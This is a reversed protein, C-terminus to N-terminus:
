TGQAQLAYLPRPNGQADCSAFKWWAWNWSGFMNVMMWRVPGPMPPWAAWMGEEFTRDLNLLAFPVVDTMGAKTLTKKGWAKFIVAAAEAEPSDVLPASSLTAFSAITSIEHHFHHAFPKRFTDMITVLKTGDFTSATPLTSLYSHFDGLGVLFSEHEQHTEDWIGKEKLVQDVKPFLEAEEDDHHSKVFRYWALSYGVFDSYEEPKVHPAQLYITNFGRLIANHLLAMHTAGKTWIDEKKTLFQPTHVLECPGDAWSQRERVASTMNSSKNAFLLGIAVAVITLAFLRPM